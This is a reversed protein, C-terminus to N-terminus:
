DMNLIALNLVSLATNKNKDHNICSYLNSQMYICYKRINVEAIMDVYTKYKKIVQLAHDQNTTNSGSSAM